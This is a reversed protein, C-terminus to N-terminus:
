LDKTWNYIRQPLKPDRLTEFYEMGVARANRVEQSEYNPAKAKKSSVNNEDNSDGDYNQEDDDSELESSEVGSSGETESSEGQVIEADSDSGEFDGDNLVVEHSNKVHDFADERSELSARCVKCSFKGDTEHLYDTSKETKLIKKFNM